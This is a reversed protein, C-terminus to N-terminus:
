LWSNILKWMESKLLSSDRGSDSGWQGLLCSQEETSLKDKQYHQPRSSSTNGLFHFSFACLSCLDEKNIFITWPHKNQLWTLKKSMNKNHCKDCFITITPLETKKCSEFVYSITIQVENRSLYGTIETVLPTVSHLTLIPTFAPEPM